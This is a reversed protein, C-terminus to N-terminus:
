IFFANRTSNELQIKCNECWLPLFSLEARSPGPETAPKPEPSSDVMELRKLVAHPCIMVSRTTTTTTTPPTRAAAARTTTTPQNAPQSAVSSAPQSAPRSGNAAERQGAM